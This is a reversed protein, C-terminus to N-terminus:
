AAKSCGSTAEVAVLWLPPAGGNMPVSTSLLKNADLRGQDVKSSHVFTLCFDSQRQKPPPRMILLSAIPLVDGACYGLTCGSACFSM